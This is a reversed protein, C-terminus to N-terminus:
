ESQNIVIGRERERERPGAKRLRKREVMARIVPWLAHKSLSEPPLRVQTVLALSVAIALPSTVVDRDRVLRGLEGAHDALGHGEQASRPLAPSPLNGGFLLVSRVFRSRVCAVVAGRNDSKRNYRSLQDLNRQSIRQMVLLNKSSVQGHFLVRTM